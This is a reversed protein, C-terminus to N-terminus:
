QAAPGKNLAAALGEAVLRYGRVNYHSTPDWFVNEWSGATELWATADHAAINEARVADLVRAKEGPREGHLTQWNPLYVFEIRGGWGTVAERAARIVRVFDALDAEPPPQYYQPPALLRQRLNRLLLIRKWFERREAAERAMAQAKLQSDIEARHAEIDQRFAPDLYSRLLPHDMEVTLEQLDNGDYFFWIVVPPERSALYERIGALMLLPGNGSAGLNIAGPYTDRLISTMDEGPPVCFGNTYSDGVAALPTPLDWVADPNNFGHRDSPYVIWRGSENCHVNLVRSISGLPLVESGGAMVRFAGHEANPRPMFFHPHIAPYAEKGEARLDALVDLKSRTDFPSSRDFRIDEPPAVALWAEAAYVAILVSFGSIIAVMRNEASLRLCALAALAVLSPGGLYVAMQLSDFEGVPYRLLVFVLVVAALAAAAALLVGTFRRM